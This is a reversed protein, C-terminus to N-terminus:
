LKRDKVNYTSVVAAELQNHKQPKYEYKVKEFAISFHDEPLADNEDKPSVLKYGTIYAKEMTWILYDQQQGSKGVAKRCALVVKNIVEGTLCFQALVPSAKSTKAVVQLDKIAVRGRAHGGGVQSSSEHAASWEFNVVEIDDTHGDKTSEGSAGEVKIYYDKSAMLKNSNELAHV